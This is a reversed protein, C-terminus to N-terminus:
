CGAEFDQVFASFDEIDVFGSDDYDASEDGLEFAQVFASYDEIDVFGSGDFDSPCGTETISFNWVASGLALGDGSPLSATSNPNAIEGDLRKAGLVGTILDQVTVTYDGGTLPVTPTLTATFNGASYAYNFPIAVNGPGVIGFNAASASVDQSFTITIAAPPTEGDIVAGLAPTTQIVKPPGQVYAVGSKGTNLIWDDPDISVSTATVPIPIVFHETKVDNRVVFTMNANNNIRVDIPMNYIPYSASQNQNIYLRLYNQGNINATQWGYQYQAAGPSYVWQNMFYTLDNGDIEGMDAFFDESTAAGGERTARYNALGAFYDADGMVHRLMHHVWAGKSYSNTSDFIRNLDGADPCYVTGSVDGPKRSNIASKLAAPNVSGAKREEWLCEGYTASGENLWIHNWTKCTVNDGWWQHALEHATLSEGFGGQGTMTQHEMGGGFTFEYIGYKENIFPYLGYVTKFTGLMSICKEWATRNGASDSSPSIFFQVPMTGTDHTYTKTWSNYTAAGFSVLYPAVPYNSAWRHKRRNGSLADIGQLVGNSAVTMATPCTVAFQMTFKDSNDGPLFVDGDKTPWWTASYYPESLSFVANSGGLTTFEISGFGRSVATGTYAIVVTFVDGANFTQPLTITRGYSNAGPTSIAANVNNVRCITVNYQSRLRITFQTLGNVLSKVTMTNTGTIVDTTPFVEMDLNQHLVDTATHAERPSGGGDGGPLDDIIGPARFKGEPHGIIPTGDPNFGQSWAQRMTQHRGCNPDHTHGTEVPGAALASLAGASSVLWAASVLRIHASLSERETLRQAM